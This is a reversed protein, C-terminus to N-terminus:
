AGAERRVYARCWNALKNREKCRVWERVLHIVNMDAGVEAILKDRDMVERRGCDCEVVIQLRQRDLRYSADPSDTEIRRARPPRARPDRLLGQWWDDDAPPLAGERHDFLLAGDPRVGVKLLPLTFPM